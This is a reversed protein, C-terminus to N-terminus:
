LTEYRMENAIKRKANSERHRLQVKFALQQRLPLCPSMSQKRSSTEVTRLKTPVISIYEGGNNNVETTPKQIHNLNHLRSKNPSGSTTKRVTWALHEISGNEAMNELSFYIVQTKVNLGNQWRGLITYWVAKLTHYVWKRPDSAAYVV